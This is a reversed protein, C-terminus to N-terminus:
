SNGVLSSRHIQFPIQKNSSIILAASNPLFKADGKFSPPIREWAPDNPHAASPVPHAASKNGAGLGQAARPGNRSLM